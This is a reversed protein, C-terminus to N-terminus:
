RELHRKKEDFEEKDIEGRAYRERLIQCASDERRDSGAGGEGLRNSAMLRKILFVMGVIVAIWFIAMIVFMFWPMGGRWMMPEGPFDVSHPMCGNLLVPLIFILFYFGNFFMAGTRKRITVDPDMVSMRGRNPFPRCRSRGNVFLRNDDFKM